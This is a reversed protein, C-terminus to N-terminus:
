NIKICLFMKKSLSFNTIPSRPNALVTSSDSAIVVSTPVKSYMAGSSILLQFIYLILTSM